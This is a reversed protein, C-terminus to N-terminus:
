LATPGQVHENLSASRDATRWAFIPIEHRHQGHALYLILVPKSGPVYMQSLRVTFDPQMVIKVM